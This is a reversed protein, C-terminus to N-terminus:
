SHPGKLGGGAREPGKRSSKETCVLVAPVAPAWDPYETRWVPYEPPEPHPSDTEESLRSNRSARSEREEVSSGGPLVCVEEVM